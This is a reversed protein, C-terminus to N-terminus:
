KKYGDFYEFGQLVNRYRGYIREASYQCLRAPHCIIAESVAQEAPLLFAIFKLFLFMNRHNNDRQAM